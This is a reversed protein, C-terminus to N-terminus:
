EIVKPVKFYRDDRDPANRLGRERDLKQDVVDERFVNVEDSMNILPKVQNTDLQNLHEMWELIEGLSEVMKSDRGPDYDLRALHYIKRLTQQDINM